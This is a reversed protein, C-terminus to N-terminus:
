SNETNDEPKSEAKSEALYIDLLGEPPDIVVAPIELDFGVIFEPRAPFLVEKDDDTMIVWMELGAPYEFHDLRGIRAGDPLVVDCDLLDELYVEDDDPEPLDERRVFLKCGRLAEAATRDAVGELLLLPREKHAACLRLRSM